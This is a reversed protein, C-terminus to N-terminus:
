KTGKSFEWSQGIGTNLEQWRSGFVPQYGIIHEVNEHIGMPPIRRVPTVSETCCSKHQTYIVRILRCHLNSVMGVSIVYRYFHANCPKM